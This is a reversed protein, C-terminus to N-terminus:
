ESSFYSFFDLKVTKFIALLKLVPISYLAHKTSGFFNAVGLASHFVGRNALLVRFFDLKEM